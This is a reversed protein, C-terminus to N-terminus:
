HCIHQMSLPVTVWCIGKVLYFISNNVKVMSTPLSFIVEGFYDVALCVVVSGRLIFLHQCFSDETNFLLFM